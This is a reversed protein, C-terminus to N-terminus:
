LSWKASRLEDLNGEWRLKGRFKRVENQKNQLSFLKLADEVLQRETKFGTCLMAKNLVDTDITITTEM